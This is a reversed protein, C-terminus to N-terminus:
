RRRTALHFGGCQSCPYPELDIGNELRRQLSARNASDADPFRRKPTGDARFHGRQSGDGDETPPRRGRRAPPPAPRRRRPSM